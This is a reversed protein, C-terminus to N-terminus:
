DVVHGTPSLRALIYDIYFGDAPADASKPQPISLESGWYKGFVAVKFGTLAGQARLEAIRDTRTIVVGAGFAQVAINGLLAHDDHYLRNPCMIVPAEDTLELTCGGLNPKLCKGVVFPCQRKDAYAFGAADLPRYGFFEVLRGVM